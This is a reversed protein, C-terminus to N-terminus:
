EPAGELQERLVEQAALRAQLTYLYGRVKPKPHHEAALQAWEVARGLLGEVEAALALNFEAKGRVKPDPDEAMGLWIERAVPWDDAKVHVKAEKLRDDGGAFYARRVLVWTPAIRAAYYEGSEFALETVTDYQSPIHRRAEGETDGKGKWTKDTAHDRLDDIVREGAVDYLRWAVLVHSFREAVHVAKSHWNGEDDKYREREVETEVRSDSDFAELAVIGQCGVQACLDRAAGWSIGEDFLSSEVEERSTITKVVRFRPSNALGSSLGQLAQVRGETDVGIAEGTVIGELVGLIGEGANSPRSRDVLAVTEVQPPVTVAAPELVRLTVAPGCGMTWAAVALAAALTLTRITM